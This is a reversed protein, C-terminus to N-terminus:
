GPGSLDLAFAAVFAQQFLPPGYRETLRSVVHEEDAVFTVVYLPRQLKNLYSHQQATLPHGSAVLQAIDSRIERDPYAETMYTLHDVLLARGTFAPIESVNGSMKVPRGPDSIFVANQPTSTAAWRYFADLAGGVPTRRFTGDEFVLPLTGRGAFALTLGATTPLFILVLAVARRWRGAIWAAAPVALLCSAANVFNHQNVEYLEVFPVVILLFLSATTLVAAGARVHPPAARVGWLALPLLVIFGAGLAAAKVVMWTGLTISMAHHFGFLHAFTPWAVLTGLLFALSRSVELAHGEAELAKRLGAVRVFAAAAVLAGASSLGIIPNFAATLAGTPVLMLAPWRRRTAHTLLWAMVMLLAIAPGRSSVDIFWVIDQGSQWDTGIHLAGLLPKAMRDDAQANTVFTDGGPDPREQQLLAQDRLVHKAGAIAPGLPNMGLLALYGIILGAITSRYLQRGALAAAVVLLALSSLAIVQFAHLLDIGAGRSIAHGVWQYFWYYAIPEGAFFPNEPVFTPSPFRSAIGAHLFGHWSALLRPSLAVLGLVAGEWALVAAIVAIWFRARSPEAWQAVRQLSM